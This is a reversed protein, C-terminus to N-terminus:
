FMRSLAKAPDRRDLRVQWYSARSRRRWLKALGLGIACPALLLYIVTLVVRSQIAALRRSGRRVADILKPAKM